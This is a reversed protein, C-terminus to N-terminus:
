GILRKGHKYGRLFERGKLPRMRNVARYLGEAYDGYTETAWERVLRERRAYSDKRTFVGKREALVGLPTGGYATFDEVGSVNKSLTDFKM